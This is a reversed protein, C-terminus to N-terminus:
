TARRFCPVHASIGIAAVIPHVGIVLGVGVRGCCVMGAGLTGVGFTGAGFAGIGIPDIGKDSGDQFSSRNCPGVGFRVRGALILLTAQRRELHQRGDGLEIAPQLM